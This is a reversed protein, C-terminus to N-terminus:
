RSIQERSDVEIQPKGHYTQIMGSICVRQNDTLQLRGIGDIHQHWIVATMVENPYPRDFNIFLGTPLEKSGSIHGCVQKYQGIYDLARSAPISNDSSSSVDRTAVPTQPTERAGLSGTAIPTQQVIADYRAHNWWVFYGMIITAFSAAGVTMARRSASRNSHSPAESVAGSTPSPLTYRNVQKAFKDLADRLLSSAEQGRNSAEQILLERSIERIVENPHDLMKQNTYRFLTRFRRLLDNQRELFDNWDEGIDRNTKYEGDLEIPLLYGKNPNIIMFDIRRKKGKEDFFVYQPVVDPPCLGPVRSLVVDVFKEEYGAVHAIKTANVRKWDLWNSL